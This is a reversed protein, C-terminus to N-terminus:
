LSRGWSDFAVAERISTLDLQTGWLNKRDDDPLKWFEGQKKENIFHDRVAGSELIRSYAFSALQEMQRTRHLAIIERDDKQYPGLAQEWDNLHEAM